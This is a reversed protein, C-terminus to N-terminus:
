KNLFSLFSKRLKSITPLVILGGVFDAALDDLGPQRGPIFMQHFEDASGICIILLLILPLSRNPFAMGALLAMTGFALVHVVKDWPPPFLSGAGPM